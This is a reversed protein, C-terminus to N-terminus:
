LRVQYTGPMVWLGRPEKPTARAIAAIPYDFADVAPPAFRLDWVFRHLGPSADLRQPLRIWYDPINRGQVPAEPPADSSYRRLLLNTTTEIFELTIPGQVAPGVLYSIVVGDPPNPAAPEDPPLPTDTNKNWRFRWATGPRFLFADARAVDATLQRL